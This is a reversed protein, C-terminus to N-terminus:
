RGVQRAHIGKHGNCWPLGREDVWTVAHLCGKGGSEGCCPGGGVLDMAGVEGEIVQKAVHLQDIVHRKNKGNPQDVFVCYVGELASPDSNMEPVSWWIGVRGALRWAPVAEGDGDVFGLGAVAWDGSVVAVPVGAAWLSNEINPICQVLQAQVPDPEPCSLAYVRSCPGPLGVVGCLRELEMTPWSQYHDTVLAWSAGRVLTPAIPVYDRCLSCAKCGGVMEQAVSSRWHSWAPAIPGQVMVEGEMVEGM